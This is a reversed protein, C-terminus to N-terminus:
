RCGELAIWSMRLAAGTGHSRLGFARVGAHFFLIIEQPKIPHSYSLFGHKDSAVPPAHSGVGVM